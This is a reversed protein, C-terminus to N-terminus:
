AIFVKIVKQIVQGCGPCPMHFRHLKRACSFCTIMHATCGHIINGDRPRVRCLRCPELLAQRGGKAKGDLLEQNELSAFCTVQSKRLPHTSIYSMNTNCN